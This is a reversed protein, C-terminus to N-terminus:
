GIAELVGISQMLGTGYLCKRNPSKLVQAIRRTNRTLLALQNKCGAGTVVTSEGTEHAHVLPPRICNGPCDHRHVLIRFIDNLFRESAREHRQIAEPRILGETGPQISDDRIRREIQRPAPFNTRRFFNRIRQLRWKPVRGFALFQPPAQSFCKRHQRFSCPSYDYQVIDLSKRVAFDALHEANRASRCSRIQVM